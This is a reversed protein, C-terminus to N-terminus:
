GIHDVLVVSDRGQAKARYLAKDAGELIDQWCDKLLAANLRKGVGISVTLHLKQKGVVIPTAAIAQRVQEFRGQLEELSTSKGAYPWSLSLVFEEGGWRVLLDEERINKQIIHGVQVLVEDGIDHGYTDNVTKFHDIDIIALCMQTNQGLSQQQELFTLFYRRNYLGTLADINSQK